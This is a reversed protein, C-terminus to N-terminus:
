AFFTQSKLNREENDDAFLFKFVIGQRYSALSALILTCHSHIFEDPKYAIFDPGLQRLSM